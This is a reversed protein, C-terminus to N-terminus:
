SEVVNAQEITRRVFRKWEVIYADRSPKDDSYLVLKQFGGGVEILISATLTEDAGESLVRSAKLSAVFDTLFRKRTELRAELYYRNLVANRFMAKTIDSGLLRAVIGDIMDDALERWDRAGQELLGILEGNFKDMMREACAAEAAEVSPFFRYLAGVAVGAEEAVMKATLAGPQNDTYLRVIADLIVTRSRRSRAQKPASRAYSGDDKSM